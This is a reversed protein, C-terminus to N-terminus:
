FVSEFSQNNQISSLNAQLDKIIKDFLFNGMSIRRVGLDKLKSFDPLEPMCMVNIPLKTKKVLTQIDMEKTVCPVFIGDAGAEDYLKIRKETELLAESVNLLFTDTRVNIFFKRGGEKLRDKLYVILKAFETADVLKREEEVISDEINIGVIGLDLLSQIYGYVESPNRNYGAEIDVTLPLTTNASIRSVVQYLDQFLMNEGDNYGLHTAIAASSTGIAQYGLSEAIKASSVDWVNCLLLPTNQNHLENFTM